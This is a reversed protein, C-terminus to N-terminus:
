NIVDYPIFVLEVRGTETNILLGPVPARLVDLTLCVLLLAIM